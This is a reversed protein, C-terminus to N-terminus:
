PHVLIPNQVYTDALALGYAHIFAFPVLDLQILLVNLYIPFFNDTWLSYRGTHFTEYGM